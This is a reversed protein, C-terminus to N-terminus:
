WDVSVTGDGHPDPALEEGTRRDVVHIVGDGKKAPCAEAARLNSELDAETLFYTRPRAVGSRLDLTWNESASACKGAGFCLNAEFLVKYPRDEVPPADSEGVSAPDFGGSDAM